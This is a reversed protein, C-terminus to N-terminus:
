KVFVKMTKGNGLRVINLGRQVGTTHRGNIDYCETASDNLTDAITAANIGNADSDIRLMSACSISTTQLYARFPNVKVGNGTSFDAVKYFKDKAIFYCNANDSGNLVVPSFTGVLRDNGEATVPATVLDADTAKVEIAAQDTDNRKVLVPTGAEITGNEIENLWISEKGVSQLEYFKCTNGEATADISYPLCLTGWTSTMDRTYSAETAKCSEYLEFAKDDALDLSEVTLTEGKAGLIEDGNTGVKKLLYGTTYNAMDGDVKKANYNPLAKCGHFMDWGYNTNGDESVYIKFNDGVYIKELASDDYFLYTCDDSERTDFSYLDLEKLSPCNAFMSKMNASKAINFSSVNLKTLNDMQYFMCAMDTVNETNFNSLDLETLSKCGYFMCSMNTVKRTDFHKLDLSKLSECGCFLDYMNTVNSTNFSSIDLTTLAKCDYFLMFMSTVKETNFSSLDLTTLANCGFFMTTMSTLNRTDFNSLDVKKLSNCNEFMSLMDTVKSTSLPSLDILELKECGKFMNAMDTTESTNLYEMGEIDTLAKMGYFWSACSTPRANAFAPDIVVKEVESACTSEWEPLISVVVKYKYTAEKDNMNNDYHFTMTKSDDQYEVWMTSKKTFYGDFTAMEKGTKTADYNPLKPCSEFMGEDNCGDAVTFDDGVYITALSSCDAFMRSMDTVNATNFSTLDLLAATACGEFMANMTTANSTNLATLDIQTLSTCGNFMRGMDTAKSTNLYALGDLSALKAMGDFWSRCSTPYVCAFAKDFTVQEVEGSKGLWAPSDTANTPLDFVSVNASARKADYHFALTKTSEDYGVWATAGNDIKEFYGGDANAMTKDIKQPDYGALKACGYFMYDDKCNEPLAFGDGVFITALSSCGFFMASADTAKETNFTSLNLRTLSSCLYFMTRMDTVNQTDFKSLDLATLSSCGAFMTQMNTVNQTDFSSLDLTTLSSCGAFMMQMITVNQTDFSSLDLTTLSSCEAFMGYTCTINKTNFSSSFNISTLSTCQLFMMQMDTVNQTDFKSLDLSTISKCNYFMADMSTVNRTDFSSLDISKLSACGYFMCSMNTVKSTNLYKLGEIEALNEMDYFWGSCTTPHANAFSADFVVTTINGVKGDQCWTPVNDGKNNAAYTDIDYDSDQKDDGYLFTLTTGDNSLRVYPQTDAWLSTPLALLTLLLALLTTRFKKKTFTTKM